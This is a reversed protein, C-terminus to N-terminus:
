RAHDKPRISPSTIMTTVAIRTAQRLAGRLWGSANGSLGPRWGDVERGTPVGPDASGSSRSTSVGGACCSGFPGSEGDRAARLAVGAALYGRLDAGARADHHEDWNMAAVCSERPTASAEVHGNRPM